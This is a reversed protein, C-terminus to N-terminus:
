QSFYAFECVTGDPYLLSLYLFLNQTEKATEACFQFEYSLQNFCGKREGTRDTQLPVAILPMAM